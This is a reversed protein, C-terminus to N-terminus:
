PHDRMSGARKPRAYHILSVSALDDNVVCSDAACVRQLDSAVSAMDSVRRKGDHHWWRLLLESRSGADALDLLRKPRSVLSGALPATIIGIEVRSIVSVALEVVSTEKRLAFTPCGFPQRWEVRTCGILRLTAWRRFARGM